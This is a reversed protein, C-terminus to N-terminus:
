FIVTLSPVMGNVDPLRVVIASVNHHSLKSPAMEGCDPKRSVCLSALVYGQFYYSRRRMVRLRRDVFDFEQVFNYLRIWIMWTASVNNTKEIRKLVFSRVSDMDAHHELHQSLVQKAQYFSPVVTTNWHWKHLLYRLLDKETQVVKVSVTANDM